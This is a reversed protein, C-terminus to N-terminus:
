AWDHERLEREEHRVEDHRQGGRRQDRPEAVALGDHEREADHHDAAEDHRGRRVEVGVASTSTASNTMALPMVMRCTTALGSAAASPGGSRECKRSVNECVKLENPVQSPAM